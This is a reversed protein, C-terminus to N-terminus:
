DPFTMQGGIAGVTMVLPASIGLIAIYAVAAPGMEVFLNENGLYLASAIAGLIIVLFGGAIKFIIGATPKLGYYLWWSQFGTIISFPATVAALLILHFSTEAFTHNRTFLFILCFLLSGLVFAIPFHVAVPHAHRKVIPFKAYIWSLPWPVRPGDDEETAAAALTGVQTIDDFVEAGHPAAKLEVTLDMGAEHRMMHKGNRWKKSDSVDYVKGDYAVYTKNGDQGKFQALKERDFNEM